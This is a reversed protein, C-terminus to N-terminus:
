KRTGDPQLEGWNKISDRYHEPIYVLRVSENIKVEEKLSGDSIQGTLTFYAGDPQKQLLGVYADDKTMGAYITKDTLRDAENLNKTIPFYKVEGSDLTAKVKPLLKTYDVILIELKTIKM